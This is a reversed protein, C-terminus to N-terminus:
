LYHGGAFGSIFGTVFGIKFGSFWKKKGKDKEEQVQKKCAIDKDAIQTNLGAIQTKQGEILTNAQNIVTTQNESIKKQDSLDAQLVPVQELTNVTARVGPETLTINNGNVVLDSDSVPALAKWRGALDSVSATNNANIQTKLSQDRKSMASAMLANQQTVSAIIANYQGQMQSVQAALQKNVEIQQALTQQALAAAVQDSNVKHDIYKNGLVFLLVLIGLILVLREHAKIFSIYKDM